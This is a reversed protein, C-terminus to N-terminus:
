APREELERLAASLLRLREDADDRQREAFEVRNRLRLIARERAREQAERSRPPWPASM